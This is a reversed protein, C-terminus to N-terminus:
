CRHRQSPWLVSAFLFTLALTKYMIRLRFSAVRAKSPPVLHSVKKLKSIPRTYDVQIAVEFDRVWHVEPSSERVAADVM